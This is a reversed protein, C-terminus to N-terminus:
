KVPTLIPFSSTPINQQIEIGSASFEKVTKINETATVTVFSSVKIDAVTAPTRTFPEPPTAPQAIGKGTQMAKTFAEMESQMVKPDKQTLAVIKTDKTITVTRKTFAGDDFPNVSQIDVSIINGEVKTVTGAVMRIDPSTQFMAGVGSEEVLKRAADFGAQYTNTGENKSAQKLYAFTVGTGFM